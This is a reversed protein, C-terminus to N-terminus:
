PQHLSTHLPARVSLCLDRNSTAYLPMVKIAVTRGRYGGKYVVGFGGRCQPDDKPPLVLENEEIVMTGPLSRQKDCM